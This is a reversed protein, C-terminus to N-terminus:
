KLNFPCILLTSVWPKSCAECKGLIGDAVDVPSKKKVEEEINDDADPEDGKGNSGVGATGVIGPPAHAFRKDFVYNKGRWMGGMPFEKFYKDIGGQLQYVGKIGLSKTDEETDMKQKLLASARECRVGGTCYMLVQKNRLMEKTEPKDLWLPFETSKRMKPDIVTAGHPPPVFRGINSEYHNRVDIVVVDSETMKTHYEHPELHQGGHKSIPPARAGALGYNVLEIVEMVNLRPFRQGQPLNHTLKFETNAFETVTKKGTLPDMTSRGGDFKRLADMWLQMNHRSGTLTCNLGERACRIRGTINYKQGINSVFQKATQYQAEDWPPEVYQYFLLLTIGENINSNSDDDDASVKAMPTAAATAEISVNEKPEEASTSSSESSSASAERKRKKKEKKQRKKEKKMQRREIDDDDDDDGRDRKSRKKEKEKKKDMKSHKKDLPPSESSSAADVTITITHDTAASRCPANIEHDDKLKLERTTATRHTQTTTSPARWLIIYQTNPTDKSRAMEKSRGRGAM